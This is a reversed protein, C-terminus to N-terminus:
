RSRLYKGPLSSSAGPTVTLWPSGPRLLRALYLIQGTHYAAHTAGRLLAQMVTHEEGRINVTRSLDSEKLTALTSFLVQWGKEWAVRLSERTDQDTLRFEDDRNRTPKEGDTTLFDTWRSTLNGALHKVILAAPNVEEGPRHFFAGDSLAALAKDALEKHHRFEYLINAIFDPM